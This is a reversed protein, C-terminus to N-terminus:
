DAKENELNTVDEFIQYYRNFVDKNVWQVKGEIETDPCIIWKIKINDNTMYLVEIEYRDLDTTGEGIIYKGGQEFVIAAM